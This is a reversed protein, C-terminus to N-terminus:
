HAQALLRAGTTGPAARLWRARRLIPSHASVVVRWQPARGNAEVAKQGRPEVLWRPYNGARCCRVTPQRGSGSKKPLPPNQARTAQRATDTAMRMILSGPHSAPNPAWWNCHGQPAKADRWERAALVEISLDSAAANADAGSFLRM